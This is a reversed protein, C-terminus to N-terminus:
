QNVLAFNALCLSFNKSFNNSSINLTIIFLLFFHAFHSM